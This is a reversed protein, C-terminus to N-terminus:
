KNDAEYCVDWKGGDVVEDNRSRDKGLAATRERSGGSVGGDRM